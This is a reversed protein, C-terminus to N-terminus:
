EVPKRGRAFFVTRELRTTKGDKERELVVKEPMVWLNFDVLGAGEFLRRMTPEDFGAVKVMHKVDEPVQGQTGSPNLFDIIVLVGGPKLREALRKTALETDNFHHFGACVVAIDFNTSSAETSSVTPPDSCLDGEVAHIREPDLGAKQAHENFKAVMGPSIDIGLTHTVYPGLARSVVGTGCAYDLLHIEKGDEPKDEESVWDIGIWELRDRIAEALQANIKLFAPKLDYEAAMKNFEAKNAAALSM